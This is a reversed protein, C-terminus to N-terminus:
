KGIPIEKTMAKGDSIDIQIVLDPNLISRLNDETILASPSPKGGAIRESTRPTAALSTFGKFSKLQDFVRKQVDPKTESLARDYDARTAFVVRNNKVTVNINQLPNDTPALRQASAFVVTFLFVLITSTTKVTSIMLARQPAENHLMHCMKLLDAWCKSSSNTVAVDCNADAM